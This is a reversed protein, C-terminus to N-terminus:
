QSRNELEHLCLLTPKTDLRTVLLKWRDFAQLFITKDHVFSM